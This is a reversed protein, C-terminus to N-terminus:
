HRIGGDKAGGLALDDSFGRELDAATGLIKESELYTQWNKICDCRVDLDKVDQSFSFREIGDLMKRDCNGCNHVGRMTGGGSPSSMLRANVTGSLIKLVEALSWIWPPRLEGARWLREAYTGRQVNLPNISIEDSFEDAFVASRVTDEIAASETFFPPKLMLYTRVAMSASKILMGARRSDEPTFGKKISVSLVDPDSSELGLAVTVTKPLASLVEENVFEPRSEFLIRECRSFEKLIRERIPAPIENEDLFSGSTYIKVFPEGKYKSLAEDIQKNFDDESVTSVSAQRYGCMTCGGKNAWCCGSTRMIMVMADSVRGSIMDKEKWCAELQFPLRNERM